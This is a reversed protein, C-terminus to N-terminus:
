LAEVVFFDPIGVSRVIEAIRLPLGQWTGICLPECTETLFCPAGGFPLELSAGEKRVVLTNGQLILWYGDGEPTPSGPTTPVFGDKIAEHNFPLDVTSPYRM